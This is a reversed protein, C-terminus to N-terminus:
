VLRIGQKPVVDILRFFPTESTLRPARHRKGSHSTSESSAPLWTVGNSSDVESPSVRWAHCIRGKGNYALCSSLMEEDRSGPRQLSTLFVSDNRSSFSSGLAFTMMKQLLTWKSKQHHGLSVQGTWPTLQGRPDQRANYIQVLEGLVSSVDGLSPPCVGVVREGVCGRVMRESDVVPAETM